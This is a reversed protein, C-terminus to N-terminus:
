VPMNDFAAESNAAPHTGSQDRETGAAGPLLAMLAQMESLLVQLGFAREAELAQLVGGGFAQMKESSENM